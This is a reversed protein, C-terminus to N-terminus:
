IIYHGENEIIKNEDENMESHSFKVVVGHLLYSLM